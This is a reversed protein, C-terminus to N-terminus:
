QWFLSQRRLLRIRFYLFITSERLRQDFTELSLFFARLLAHSRNKCSSRSAGYGCAFSKLEAALGHGLVLAFRVLALHKRCRAHFLYGAFALPHPCLVEVFFWIISFGGEGELELGRLVVELDLLEAVACAVM